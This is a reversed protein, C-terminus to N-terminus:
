RAPRRRGALAPRRGGESRSGRGASFRASRLELVDYSDHGQPWLEYSALPPCATRPDRQARARRRRPRGRQARAARRPDPQAPRPDGQLGANHAGWIDDFLRDGVYVCRAPDDVGVADMAARFAEPAPKTWPVESTYVAGDILDLVGDRAFFEEHWARPWITNSLVGVKIGRDRLTLFLPAVQPDTRTHPEWFERYHILLEPDHELGAEAFVDAM